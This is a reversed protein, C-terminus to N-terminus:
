FSLSRFPLMSDAQVFRCVGTSCTRLGSTLKLKFFAPVASNETSEHTTRGRQRLLFPPFTNSLKYVFSSCKKELSHKQNETHTQTPIHMPDPHGHLSSSSALDGPAPTVSLRSSSSLFNQSCLRPGRCSCVTSKVM